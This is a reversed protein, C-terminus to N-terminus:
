PKLILKGQAQRGTVKQLAAVAESLPLESDIVPKFVGSSIWGFLQEMNSAFVAPERGTFEGWFVGVLSYGKVLTLNIPLQPIRGAAFGIVLLRGNWAMCRSCVDFADGGVPDYVVDVGKGASLKKVEAKLDQQQYNILHDAGHAEATALKEASSCVAIVEAGMAKGIQVAALGTGGAAGLVLLTEGPQIRARQKLAHHATGYAVLLAAAESDSVTDPISFASNEHISVQEAFGGLGSLAVVRDGVNFRSVDAGTQAVTGAIEMGPTFPCPPKVQYLGQVMLADPFNVGIASVDVVLNNASVAPADVEELTLQEIPAFANCIIAKM